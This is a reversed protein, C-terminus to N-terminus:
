SARMGPFRFPPTSRDTRTVVRWLFVVASVVVAYSLALEFPVKSLFLGALLIIVFFSGANVLSHLVRDRTFCRKV